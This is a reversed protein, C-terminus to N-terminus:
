SGSHLTMPVTLPSQNEYYKICDQLHYRTGTLVLIGPIAFLEAYVEAPTRGEGKRVPSNVVVLQKLSSWQARMELALPAPIQLVDVHDLLKEELATKLVEPNSISAGLLRLGGVQQRRM